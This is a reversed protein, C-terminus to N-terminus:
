SGSSVLRGVVSRLQSELVMGPVQDVVHGRADFFVTTPMSRVNYHRLATADTAYAAPYHIGLEALLRRGSDHSGLGTFTGVDVGVFRVKGEFEDAVRQFAPMEARCPPCDGAWFNLVVPKGHEFVREFTIEQGGLIAEGQYAVLAFSKVDAPAAAPACAALLLSGVALLWVILRM